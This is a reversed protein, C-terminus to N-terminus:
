AGGTGDTEIEHFASAMLPRPRGGSAETGALALAFQVAEAGRAADWTAVYHRLLHYPVGRRVAAAAEPGGRLQGVLQYRVYGLAIHVRRMPAWLAVRGDRRGTPVEAWPTPEADGSRTRALLYVDVDGTDASFFRWRPLLGFRDLRRVARAARPGPLQNLASLLFWLSLVVAAPVM